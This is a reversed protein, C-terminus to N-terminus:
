RLGGLAESARARAQARLQDLPPLGTRENWEESTARPAMYRDWALRALRDYGAAREPDGLSQWLLAQYFAGEVVAQAERDSLDRLRTAFANATYAEFGAATDEEPFRAKIDDYLSRADGIRNYAVLLTLAERLFNLYATRVSDNGPNARLADEYGERVRPLLDPSPSPIFRDGEPGTFLSGQRFADALSQFIMRNASLRDFESRAVLRSQWAWYIAHAQPLRWDLPGYRADVERMVALDLKYTERLAARQAEAGPGAAEYDPGPGGLVQTMEAAWAEKYFRHAQDLNAGMKHQFLWGLEYLLRAEGPNYRLGEDRLLAIGSRVWRWRDAPDDFLVSINYALNWAHYAWVGTFRPELKTIWDAIQVLEFYQGDQQLRSARLWLLDAVIGRFGGLAVTTFTVLPPANILPDAQTIGLDRRMDRLPENLRAVGFWGAACLALLVITSFRPM